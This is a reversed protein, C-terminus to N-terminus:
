RGSFVEDLTRTDLISDARHKLEDSGANQLRESTASDLSGFRRILQRQLVALEGQQMGHLISQERSKARMRKSWTMM